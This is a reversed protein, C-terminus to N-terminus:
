GDNLEPNIIMKLSAASRWTEPARAFMGKSAMEAMAVKEIPLSTMQWENTVMTTKQPARLMMKMLLKM